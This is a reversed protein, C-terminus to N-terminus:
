KKGERSTLFGANSFRIFHKGLEFYIFWYGMDIFWKFKFWLITIHLFGFFEWFSFKYPEDAGYEEIRRDCISLKFITM